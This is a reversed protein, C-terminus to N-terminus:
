LSTNIIGETRLLKEVKDHEDMYRDEANKLFELYEPEKRICDIM